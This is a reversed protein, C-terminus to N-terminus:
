YEYVEDGKDHTGEEGIALHKWSGIGKPIYSLSVVGFRFEGQGISDIWRSHRFNEDIQNFNAINDESDADHITRDPDFKFM